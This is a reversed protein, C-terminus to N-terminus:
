LVHIERSKALTKIDSGNNLSDILNDLTNKFRNSILMIKLM